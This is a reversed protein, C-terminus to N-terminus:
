LGQTFRRVTRAISATVIGLFFMLAIYSLATAATNMM